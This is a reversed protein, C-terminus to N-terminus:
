PNSQSYDLLTPSCEVIRKEHSVAQLHFSTITCSAAEYRNSDRNLLSTPQSVTPYQRCSHFLLPLPPPSINPHFLYQGGIHDCLCTSLAPVTTILLSEDYWFRLAFEHKRRQPLSRGIASNSNQSVGWQAGSKDAGVKVFLEQNWFFQGGLLWVPVDTPSWNQSM